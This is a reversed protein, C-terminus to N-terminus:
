QLTGLPLTMQSVIPNHQGMPPKSGSFSEENSINQKFGSISASDGLGSEDVRIDVIDSKKVSKLKMSTNGGGYYSSLGDDMMSSSVSGDEIIDDGDDDQRMLSGPGSMGDLLGAMGGHGALLKRDNKGDHISKLAGEDNFELLQEDVHESFGLDIM